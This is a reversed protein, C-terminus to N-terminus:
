HILKLLLGGIVGTQVIGIGLVITLTTVVSYHKMEAVAAALDSKTIISDALAENLADAFEAAEEETFRGKGALRKVLRHTDIMTAMM